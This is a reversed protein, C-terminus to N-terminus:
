RCLPLYGEALTTTYMIAYGAASFDCEVNVWLKDGGMTGTTSIDGLIGHLTKVYMGFAPLTVTLNGTEKLSGDSSDIENFTIDATGEESSRNIIVIGDTWTPSDMEPFYPYILTTGGTPEVECDNVMTAICIDENLSVSCPEKTLVVSVNVTENLNVEAHSYVLGPLNIYLYKYDMPNFNASKLIVAKDDDDVDCTGADFSGVSTIGDALYASFAPYIAIGAGDDCPDETHDYGKVTVGPGGWYIGTGNITLNLSYGADDFNLASTRIIIRGGTFDDCYGATTELDFSCIGDQGSEIFVNGCTGAGKCHYFTHTVATVAHAIEPNTPDFNFKDGASDLSVDMTNVDYNEVDICITNDASSAHEDYAGDADDDIFIYDGGFVGGPTINERQDFCFLVMTADPEGSNITLEGTGPDDNMITVTIRGSGSTTQLYFYIGGNASAPVNGGTRYFPADAIPTGGRKAPNTHTLSDDFHIPEGSGTTGACIIMDMSRCNKVGFPLDIYFTDGETLVTNGDFAFSMFGAKGCPNHYSIPESATNVAVDNVAAMVGNGTTQLIATLLTLFVVYRKFGKKLGM